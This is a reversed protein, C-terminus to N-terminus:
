ISLYNIGYKFSQIYQITKKVLNFTKKNAYIFSINNDINDINIRLNTKNTRAEALTYNNKSSNDIGLTSKQGWNEALDLTNNFFHAQRPSRM